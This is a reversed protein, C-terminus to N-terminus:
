GVRVIGEGPTVRAFHMGVFIHRVRLLPGIIVVSLNSFRLQQKWLRPRCGNSGGVDALILIENAGPYARM